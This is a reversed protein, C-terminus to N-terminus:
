KWGGLSWGGRHRKGGLNIVLPGNVIFINKAHVEGINFNLNFVVDFLGWGWGKGRVDMGQDDTLTEMSGLGLEALQAQSIEGQQEGAHASSGSSTVAFAVTAAALVAVLRSMM